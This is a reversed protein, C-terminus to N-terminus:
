GRKSMYRSSRLTAMHPHQRDVEQTWGHMGPRQRRLARPANAAVALAVVLLHPRVAVNSWSPRAEIAPRNPQPKSASGLASSCSGALPMNVAVSAM